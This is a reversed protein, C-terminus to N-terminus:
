SRTARCQRESFYVQERVEETPSRHRVHKVLGVVTVWTSPTGTM